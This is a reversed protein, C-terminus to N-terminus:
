VTYSTGMHSVAKMICCSLVKVDPVALWIHVFPLVALCLKCCIMHGYKIYVNVYISKKWKYWCLGRYKYCTVGYLKGTHKSRVTFALILCLSLLLVCLTGVYNSQGYEKKCDHTFSIVRWCMNREWTISLYMVFYRKHFNISLINGYQSLILSIISIFKVM